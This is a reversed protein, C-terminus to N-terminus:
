RFCLSEILSHPRNERDRFLFQFLALFSPAPLTNPCLFLPRSRLGSGGVKGGLPGHRPLGQETQSAPLNPLPSANVSSRAFPLISATRITLRTIGRPATTLGSYRSPSTDIWIFRSWPWM